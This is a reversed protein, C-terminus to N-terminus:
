IGRKKNPFESSHQVKSLLLSLWSFFVLIIFCFLVVLFIGNQCHAQSQGRGIIQNLHLLLQERAIVVHQVETLLDPHLCSPDIHVPAMLLPSVLEGEMGLGMGVRLAGLRPSLLEGNGGYIPPAARCTEPRDAGQDPSGLSISSPYSTPLNFTLSHVLSSSSWLDLHMVHHSLPRGNPCSLLKLSSPSCSSFFFILDRTDCSINSRLPFSIHSFKHKLAFPQSSGRGGGGCGLQRQPCQNM